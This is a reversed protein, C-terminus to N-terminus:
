AWVAIESDVWGRPKSASFYVRVKGEDASIEQKVVAQVEPLGAKRAMEVAEYPDIESSGVFAAVLLKPVIDVMPEGGEYSWLGSLQWGAALAVVEAEAVSTAEGLITQATVNADGDLRIVSAYDDEIALIYDTVSSKQSPTEDEAPMEMEALIQDLDSTTRLAKRRKYAHYAPAVFLVVVVVANLCVIGIVCNIFTKM